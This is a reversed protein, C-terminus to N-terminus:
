RTKRRVLSRSASPRQGERRQNSGYGGGAQRLSGTSAWTARSTADQHVARRAPRRPTVETQKKGDHDDHTRTARRKPSGDHVGHMTVENAHGEDHEDPSERKAGRCADDEDHTRVKTNTAIRRATTDIRRRARDDDRRPQNMTRRRSGGDDHGTTQRRQSRDHRRAKKRRTDTTGDHRTRHEDDHDTTGDHGTRHEEDHDTTGGHRRDNPHEDHSRPAHETKTVTKRTRTTSTTDDHSTQITRRSGNHRRSAGDRTNTTAERRTNGKRM